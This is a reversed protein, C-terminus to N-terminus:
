TKLEKLLLMAEDLGARPTIQGSKIMYDIGVISKYSRELRSSKINYTQRAYNEVMSDWQFGLTSKIQVTTVRREKLAKVHLMLRFQREIMSIIFVMSENHELMSNLREYGDAANGSLISDIMRFVNTETDPIVFKDVDERTITGRGGKYAILKDAEAKIRLMSGQCLESLEYVADNTIKADSKNFLETIRKKLEAASLYNFTVIRGAKEFVGAAANKSKAPKSDADKKGDSNKYFIVVSSSNPTSIFESLEKSGHKQKRGDGNEKDSEEQDADDSDQASAKSSLLPMDKVIVVRMKSMLPVQAAAEAVENLEPKILISEDIAEFGAALLSKELKTLLEQKIYDEDGEFLYSGSIQGKDLLNEFEEPTM